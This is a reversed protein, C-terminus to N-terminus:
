PLDALTRQDRGLPQMLWKVDQLMEEGALLLPTQEAVVGQRVSHRLHLSIFLFLGTQSLKPFNLGLDLPGTAKPGTVFLM